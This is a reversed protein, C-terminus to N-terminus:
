CDMHIKNDHILLPAGMINYQCQQVPEACWMFKM